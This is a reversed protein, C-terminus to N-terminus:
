PISCNFNLDKSVASFAFCDCLVCLSRGRKALEVCGKRGKRNIFMGPDFCSSSLLVGFTVLFCIHKIKPFHSHMLFPFYPHM